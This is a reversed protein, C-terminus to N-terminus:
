SSFYFFKLCFFSTKLARSRSFDGDQKFDASLESKYRCIFHKSTKALSQQHLIQRQSALIRRKTSSFRIKVKFIHIAKFFVFRGQFYAKHIFFFSNQKFIHRQRSSFRIKSSFYSNRKLFVFKEKAKHIIFSSPAMSLSSSIRMLRVVALNLVEASFLIRRIPGRETVSISVGLGSIFLLLNINMM